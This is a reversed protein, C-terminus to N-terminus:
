RDYPIGDGQAIHDDGQLAGAGLRLFKSVGDLPLNSVQGDVGHEVQQAVVVQIFARHFLLHPTSFFGNSRGNFAHATILNFISLQFHFIEVKEM